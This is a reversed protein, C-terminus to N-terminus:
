TSPYSLSNAYLAKRDGDWAHGGSVHANALPVLHDVDLKGPDEVTAGTYPDTWRGSEVRCEVDDKFVVPVSSEAILVEQRADQCDRDADNWHDWEGRDYDPIGVPVESVTVSLVLAVPRPAAPTSAPM